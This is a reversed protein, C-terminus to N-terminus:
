YKLNNKSIMVIQKILEGRLKYYRPNTTNLVEFVFSLKDKDCSNKLDEIYGKTHSGLFAIEREIDAINYEKESTKPVGEIAEAVIYNEPKLNRSGLNFQIQANKFEEEDGFCIDRIIDKGILDKIRDSARKVMTKYGNVTLGLVECAESQKMGLTKIVPISGGVKKEWKGSKVYANVQKLLKLRREDTTELLAKNLERFISGM